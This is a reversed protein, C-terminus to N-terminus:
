IKTSNSQINETVSDYTSQFGQFLDDNAETLDLTAYEKLKHMLAVNFGDIQLQSEFFM